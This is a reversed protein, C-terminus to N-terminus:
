MEELIGPFADFFFYFIMIMTITIEARSFAHKTDEGTGAISNWSRNFNARLRMLSSLMGYTHM